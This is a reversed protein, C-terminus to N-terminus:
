DWTLAWLAPAFRPWRRFKASTSQRRTELNRGCSLQSGNDNGCSYRDRLDFIFKSRRAQRTKNRAEKECASLWVCTNVVEDPGTRMVGRFWALVSISAPPFNM